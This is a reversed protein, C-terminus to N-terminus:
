FVRRKGGKREARAIKMEIYKALQLYTHTRCHSKFKENEKKRKRRNTDWPFLIHKRNFPPPPSFIPLGLTQSSYFTLPWQFDTGYLLSPAAGTRAAVPCINDRGEFKKLFFMSRQFSSVDLAATQKAYTLIRRIDQPDKM